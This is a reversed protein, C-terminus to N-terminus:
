KPRQSMNITRAPDELSVFTKQDRLAHAQVRKGALDSVEDRSLTAVYEEQGERHRLFHCDSSNRHKTATPPLKASAEEYAALWVATEEETLNVLGQRGPSLALVALEAPYLADPFYEEFVTDPPFLVNRPTPGYGVVLGHSGAAFIETPEDLKPWFCAIFRTDTVRGMNATIREGILTRM